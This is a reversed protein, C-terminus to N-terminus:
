LTIQPLPSADDPECRSPLGTLSALGETGQALVHVLM